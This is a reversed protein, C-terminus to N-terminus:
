KAKPLIRRLDEKGIVNTFYALMAYSMLYGIALVGFALAPPLDWTNKLLFFPITAVAAVFLTKGYFAWPFVERFSTKVLKQIVRLAYWWSFINAILSALPPGAMGFWLVFPICLVANIGFLYIAAKTIERTSGLAKQMNSYSAVRQLLIFSYIRFPVAAPAYSEPFLLAIFEEATLVFVMVLPVVIVTIKKISKEWLALLAAREGKLHHSVLLPMMVSAVSYAIGPIIPLEYAGASYVAFLSVPLFWQVVYKDVQRNLGWFVQALSLPVSYHLVEKVTGKPLDPAEDHRFLRQFIAASVVFRLVGYGFLGWTVGVVPNPFALPVVIAMFQALGVFLNYWAAGKARDLAILINPIPITPLEFIVLAAMVWALTAVQGFGERSAGVWAIALLVTAAVLGLGFLLKSVLLAVSKRSAGPFKEFFYFISDPLGLQGFTQATAYITLLFFVVGADVEPLHHTLIVMALLQAIITVAKSVTFIGAKRALSM